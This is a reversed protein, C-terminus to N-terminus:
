SVLAQGTAPSLHSWAPALVTTRVVQTGANCTAGTTVRHPFSEPNVTGKSGLVCGSFTWLFHKPAPCTWELERLVRTQHSSAQRVGAVVCEGQRYPASHPTPCRGKCLLGLDKKQSRLRLLPLPSRIQQWRM